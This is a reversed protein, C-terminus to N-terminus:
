ETCSLKLYFGMPIIAVLNSILICNIMESISSHFASLLSVEALLAIFTIYAIKTKHISLSYNVLLTIVSLMLMAVGYPFMYGIISSYKDGFMVWAILQPFLLYLLSVFGGIVVTYLLAKFLLSSHSVKREFSDSIKPFMALAIGSPAFLIIKGLVALAAFDGALNVDLYHKALLVDVYTLATYSFIALLALTSYSYVDGMEFKQSSNKMLSRIFVFTIFFVLINAIAIPLLAGYVGFGLLVLGVAFLLKILVWLNNSVSFEIFKQLGMLLGLNASLAFSFVLSFALLIVYWENDINFFRSLPFSLISLLLFSALGLLLARNVLFEWIYRIRGYKGHAKLKSVYRVAATQITTGGVNIIYMLSLLSYLIGYEEKSLLRGMLLQYVYSFFNVAMASVMMIISHKTLNQDEM